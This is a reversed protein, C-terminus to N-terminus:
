NEGKIHINGADDMSFIIKQPSMERVDKYQAFAKLFNEKSIKFFSQNENLNSFREPTTPRLEIMDNAITMHIHGFNKDYFSEKKFGHLWKTYLDLTSNNSDYIFYSALPALLHDFPFDQLDITYFQPFEKSKYYIIDQM